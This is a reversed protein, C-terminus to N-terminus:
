LCVGQDQRMVICSGCWLGASVKWVVDGLGRQEEGTIRGGGCSSEVSACPMLFLRTAKGQCNNVPLDFSQAAWGNGTVDGSRGAELCGAMCLTLLDRKWKAM